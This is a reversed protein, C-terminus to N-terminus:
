RHFCAAEGERRRMEERISKRLDGRIKFLRAKLTGPKRNIDRAYDDLTKDTGYRMLVLEQDRSPLRKLCNRLAILADPNVTGADGPASWEAATIDKQDAFVRQDRRHQRLQNCVELRAIAFSWARFNSGTEFSTRKRWLILNTRQLLDQAEHHNTVLTKIYLLLRHQHAVLLEEFTELSAPLGASVQCAPMSLDDIM